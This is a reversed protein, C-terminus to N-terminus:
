IVLAMITLFAQLNGAVLSKGDGIALYGLCLAADERLKARSNVSKLLRFITKIVYSKTCKVTEGIEFIIVFFKHKFIITELHKVNIQIGDIEMKEGSDYNMIEIESGDTSLPLPITSGILSIGKVAASVLM